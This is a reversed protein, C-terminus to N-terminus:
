TSVEGNELIGFSEGLLLEGSVDAALLTWWKFIDSSGREKTEERIGQIATKVKADILPFMSNVAAKSLGPELVSRHRDHVKVEASSLM